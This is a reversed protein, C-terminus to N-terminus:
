AMLNDTLFPDTKSPKGTEVHGAFRRLYQDIPNNNNNDLPQVSVDYWGDKTDIEITQKSDAGLGYVAFDSLEDRQNKFKRYASTVKMLLKGPGSGGVIEM